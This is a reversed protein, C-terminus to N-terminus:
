VSDILPKRALFAVVGEPLSETGYSPLSRTEFGSSRPSELVEDPEVLLLRHIESDRRYTGNVQRFSTIRRTLV